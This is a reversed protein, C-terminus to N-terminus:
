WEHLPKSLSCALASRAASDANTNGSEKLKAGIAADRARLSRYQLIIADHVRSAKAADKLALAKLIDEARHEITQTYFAEREEPTSAPTAEEQAIVAGTVFVVTSLVLGLSLRKPNM